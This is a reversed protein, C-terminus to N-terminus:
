KNANNRDEKEMNKIILIIQPLKKIVAFATLASAIATIAKIFGALLYESHWINIIEMLHTTGCALIFISFLLFIYHYPIKYNTKSVVYALIVPILTYSLFIVADSAAHLWLIEPRWLYCHGHPMFQKSNLIDQLFSNLIAM